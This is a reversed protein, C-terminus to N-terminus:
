FMDMAFTIKRRPSLNCPLGLTLLTWCCGSVASTLPLHLPSVGGHYATFCIKKDELLLYFSTNFNQFWACALFHCSSWPCTDKGKLTLLLWMSQLRMLLNSNIKDRYWCSVSCEVEVVDVGQGKLKVEVYLGIAAQHESLKNTGLLLFLFLEKIFCGSRSVCSMWSLQKGANWSKSRLPRPKKQPQKLVATEWVCSHLTCHFGERSQNIIIGLATSGLGIRLNLGDAEVSCFFQKSQEREM